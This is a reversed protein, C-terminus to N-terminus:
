NAAYFKHAIKFDVKDGTLEKINNKLTAFDVARLVAKVVFGENEHKIGKIEAAIKELQGLTEGLDQYDGKGEVQYFLKLTLKKGQRLAMECTNGYAKILGGIGLKTGGFYRTVVVCINLLEYGAIKALVPPGSSGSPEGDDDSYEVIEQSDYIRFASVNHSADSYTSKIKAIFDEAEKRSNCPSATAIFRSDKVKNIIKLPEKLTKYSEKM